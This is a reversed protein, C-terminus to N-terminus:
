RITRIVQVPISHSQSSCTALHSGTAAAATSGRSAASAERSGAAVDVGNVATMGREAWRRRARGDAEAPATGSTVHSRRATEPKGAPPPPPPLQQQPQVRAVACGMMLPWMQTHVAIARCRWIGLMTIAGCHVLYRGSSAAGSTCVIPRSTELYRQSHLKRGRYRATTTRLATM